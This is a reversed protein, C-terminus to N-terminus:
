LRASDWTTVHRAGRLAVVLTSLIARGAGDGGVRAVRARSHAAELGVAFDGGATRDFPAGLGALWEITGRGDSTLAHAAEPVVLGAGAALTDAAHLEASDEGRLAAAVGGQAWASSCAELLPAPTVVLVRRPAAELAASLGAMGGGIILVGDHRLTQTM